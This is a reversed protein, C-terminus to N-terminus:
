SKMKRWGEKKQKKVDQWLLGLWNLFVLFFWSTTFKFVKRLKNNNNFFGGFFLWKKLFVMGGGRLTYGM